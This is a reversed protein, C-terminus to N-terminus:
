PMKAVSSAGRPWNSPNKRPTIPSEPLTAVAQSPEGRGSAVAGADLVASYLALCQESQALAQDFQGAQFAAQARVAAGAAEAEQKRRAIKADLEATRRDVLDLLASKARVPTAQANSKLQELQRRTQELGNLEEQSAVRELAALEAALACAEVWEAWSTRLGKFPSPPTVAELPSVRQGDLLDMEGLASVVRQDAEAQLRTQTGLAGLQAPAGTQDLVIRREPARLQILSGATLVALPGCAVLLMALRKM